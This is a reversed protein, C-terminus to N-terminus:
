MQIEFLVNCVYTCTHTYIYIYICTDVYSYGVFDNHYEHPRAEGQGKAPQVFGAFGVPSSGIGIGM